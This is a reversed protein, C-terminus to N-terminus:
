CVDQFNLLQPQQQFFVYSLSYVVSLFDWLMHFSIEHIIGHEKHLAFISLTLDFLKCSNEGSLMVVLKFSKMKEQESSLSFFAYPSLPSQSFETTVDQFICSTYHLFQLGLLDPPSSFISGELVDLCFTDNFIFAVDRLHFFAEVTCMTTWRGYVTGYSNKASGLHVCVSFCVSCM